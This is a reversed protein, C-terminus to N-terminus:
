ELLWEPRVYDIALRKVGAGDFAVTAVGTEVAVVTGNGYKPHNIKQGARVEVAPTRPEAETQAGQGVKQRASELLGVLDLHKPQQASKEECQPLAPARRERFLGTGLYHVADDPLESLFVSPIRWERRGYIYRSYCYTMYLREKARTMGVYCLRREEAMEDDSSLSREHPLIGQEMGVIFVVPFELGKAAHLTMLTVSDGLDGAEDIDTMLAVQELFAALDASPYRAEFAAAMNVLEEVNEAKAQQDARASSRLWEIYGSREAVERVLDSLAVQSARERLTDILEVFKQLAARAQSRQTENAAVRRCAEFF